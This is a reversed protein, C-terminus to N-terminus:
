SARRRLQRALLLALLSIAIAVALPVPSRGASSEGVQGSVPNSAADVTSKAQAAADKAAAALQGNTEIRSPPIPQSKLTAASPEVKKAPAKKAPAKKAPAKKAAAKKAAAKKPAAPQAKKAAKAAKAPAKKAPTKKAPKDPAKASPPSPEAAREPPKAPADDTPM